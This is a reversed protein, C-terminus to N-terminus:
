IEEEVRAELNANRVLLDAAEDDTLHQAVPVGDPRLLTWRVDSVKKACPGLRTFCGENQAEYEAAAAKPDDGERSVMIDLHPSVLHHCGSEHIEYYSNRGNLAIIWTTM